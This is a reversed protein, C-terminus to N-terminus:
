ASDFGRYELETYVSILWIDLVNPFIHIALTIEQDFKNLSDSVLLYHLYDRWLYVNSKFKRIMREYLHM